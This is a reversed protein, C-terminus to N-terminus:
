HYCLPAPCEGHCAFLYDCEKCQTPLTSQKADGFATTTGQRSLSGIISFLVLGTNLIFTITVVTCHDMMNSLWLTAAPPSFVCLPSHGTAWASLMVDFIQVFMKGIDRRVWEDFISNLFKGGKPVFAGDPSQMVVTGM